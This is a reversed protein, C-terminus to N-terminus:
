SANVSEAQWGQEQSELHADWQVETYVIISWLAIYAPTSGPPGLGGWGGFILGWCWFELFKPGLIATKPGLIIMRKLFKLRAKSAMLEQSSIIGIKELSVVSAMTKHIYTDM